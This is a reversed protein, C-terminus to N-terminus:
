KFQVGNTPVASKQVASKKTAGRSTPVASKPVASKKTPVASMHKTTSQWQTPSEESIEVIRQDKYELHWLTNLKRSKIACDVRSDEM